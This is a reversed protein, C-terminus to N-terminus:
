KVTVSHKIFENRRQRREDKHVIKLGYFWLQSTKNCLHNISVVEFLNQTTNLSEM